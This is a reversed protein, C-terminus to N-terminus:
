DPGSRDRSKEDHLEYQTKFDRDFFQRTARHWALVLGMGPLILICSWFGFGRMLRDYGFYAM